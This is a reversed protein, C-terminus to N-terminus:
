QQFEKMNIADETLSRERGFFVEDPLLLEVRSVRYELREIRNLLLRHAKSDKAQAEAEIAAYRESNLAYAMLMFAFILGTIAAITRM